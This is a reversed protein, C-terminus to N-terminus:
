VEESGDHWYYALFDPEKTDAMAEEFTPMASNNYYLSEGLGSHAVNLFPPFVFM